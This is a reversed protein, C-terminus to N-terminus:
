NFAASTVVCKSEDYLRNNGEDFDLPLVVDPGHSGGKHYAGSPYVTAETRGYYNIMRRLDAIRHATGWLWMAREAMLLDVRAAATGPDTLAA